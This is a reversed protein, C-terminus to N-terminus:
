MQALVKKLATAAGSSMDPNRGEMEERTGQVRETLYGAAEAWVKGEEATSPKSGAKGVLRCCVEGIMQDVSVRHKVDVRKLDTQTLTKGDINKPGPNTIDQVVREANFMLMQAAELSSADIKGSQSPMTALVARMAKAAAASMDPSRGKCEFSSAQIRSNFFTAAQEWVQAESSSTPELMKKGLLRGCVERIMKDVSAKHQGDVRKLDKQTLDGGKLAGGQNTIDQVVMERNSMLKGSAEIDALVTRMATAAARGMDPARGPMDMSSGQIRGSLFVAAEAWVLGEEPSSPVAGELGLLRGGLVKVMADVSAKKSSDVRKLDTQTLKGGKLGQGSSNTIDQVVMERNSLLMHAAEMQGLAAKLAKGAAVSMDAKRAEHPPDNETNPDQIRAALFKAAEAWLLVKEKALPESISAVTTLTTGKGLLRSSVERVMADVTEAHQRDMRKLNTQSLVGGKVGRAGTNTIDLVVTERNSILKSAAEIQALVTRMAAASASSMDPERGACETTSGQLRKGLFKAAQMWVMAEEATSPGSAEKGLLRCCTARLMARVGSTFPECDKLRQLNTQTLKGGKLGTSGQNTIDRVVMDFNAMLKCAADVKAQESGAGFELPPAQVKNPSFLGAFCAACDM